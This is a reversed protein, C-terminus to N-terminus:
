GRKKGRVRVDGKVHLSCYMAENYISLRAGCGPEACLRGPAFRKPPRDHNNFREAGIATDTHERQQVCEM